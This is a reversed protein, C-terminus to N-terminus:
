GGFWWATLAALCVAVAVAAVELVVWGASSWTPSSPPEPRLQRGVISGHPNEASEILQVADWVGREYDTFDSPDGGTIACKLLGASMHELYYVRMAWSFGEARARRVQEANRTDIMKKIWKIM